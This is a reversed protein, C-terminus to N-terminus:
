FSGGMRFEWNSKKEDEKTNLNYGWEIRLPGMPSLWRIGFGVSYRVDDFDATDPEEWVNGTDFFVVGHLGMDKVLPFIGETQAYFMVEGGIREGTATDIPSVRGYKYGRM